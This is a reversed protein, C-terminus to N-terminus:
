ICTFLRNNYISWICSRGSKFALRERALMETFFEATKVAPLGVVDAAVLM